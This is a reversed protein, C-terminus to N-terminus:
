EKPEPSRERVRPLSSLDAGLVPTADESAPRFQEPTVQTLPVDAAPPAALRADYQSDPERTLTKWQDRGLPQPMQMEGPSQLEVMPTFATYGSHKATWFLKNELWSRDAGEGEFRIFPREGTPAAFLCNSPECLIPLMTRLDKGTVRLLPGGLYTTVHDLNLVVQSDPPAEKGGAEIGLLSGSLAVLSNKLGLKVPRSCQSLLLDGEGRVFCNEMTLRAGKEGTGKTPMDVTMFKGPRPLIAVALATKNQGARDLTLVCDELTCQANDILVAVAQVDFGERSPQLRIGLHELRLSGGHVRFLASEVEGGPELTLVPRVDNGGRITLNSLNPKNLAIPDLKLVGDKEIVIVDGPRAELLAKALTDYNDSDEGVTLKRPATEQPPEDPPPRDRLYSVGAVQEAGVLGDKLRLAFRGRVQFAEALEQKELRELPRTALWPSENLLLGNADELRSDRLRRRFAAWSAGEPSAPTAWFGDLNYYRNDRGQFTVREGGVQHILVAQGGGMGGSGDASPYRGFLCASVDLAVPGGDAFDFVASSGSVLVSCHEVKVPSPPSGRSTKGPEFRFPAAHPGFVSQRVSLAVPGRLLVGDQGADAEGLVWEPLHGGETAGKNTLSRFGVFCCRDLTLDASVRSDDKGAADAVVSSLFLAPEDSRTPAPQAQFFDCEEVKHQGGRFWVAAMPTAPAQRADVIFRIGRISANKSEITLPARLDGGSSAGDYSFRIMPRRNGKSEITVEPNQVLLGQREKRDRSSLDVDDALRIKIAKADRHEELWALLSAYSPRPDDYVAVSPVVPPGELPPKTGSEAKPRSASLDKTPLPDATPTPNTTLPSPAPPRSPPSQDILFILGVVAVAALAALLLPRGSPPAPLAAELSLVGEPVDASVGLKRAVVLLHHVLQECSQYRDRPQKAMMRDLIVAVEDPLDPVFQRPDPPRVHQHHHLKKAATGEPVPPHGTIAHYFTCGLSYIDSRVDADRPELAQEPSIYDFTGLTVGSHTLGKDNQPELSRALGMDVLKARGNPTIIINSPKIDRHVVGRRAAHALGAAVQLMCHLAEQVPLRGRREIITRLNEGEVFEFAIFHLRQDEGCFFVRAINEHDLKAASRAEQHFRRINEADAAMEPPLIKLAVCRDLQTDRARLVAAMGGVGIPEILEFHALRRGRVGGSLADEPHAPEPSQSPRPASRSVITPSDDSAEVPSDLADDSASTAPPLAVTQHPDLPDREQPGPATLPDSMALSGRSRDRGEQTIRNRAKGSV